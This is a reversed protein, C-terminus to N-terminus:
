ARLIRVRVGCPYSVVYVIKYVKEFSGKRGSGSRESGTGVVVFVLNGREDLLMNKFLKMERISLPDGRGLVWM